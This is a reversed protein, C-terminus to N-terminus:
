KAHSRRKTSKSANRKQKNRTKNKPTLKKKARKKKKPLDHTAFFDEAMSDYDTFDALESGEANSELYDLTDGM